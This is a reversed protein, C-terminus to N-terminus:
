MLDVTAAGELSISQTIYSATVDGKAKGRMQTGGWGWPGETDTIAVRPQGQNPGSTASLGRGKEASSPCMCLPNESPVCCDGMEDELEVVIEESEQGGKGAGPGM